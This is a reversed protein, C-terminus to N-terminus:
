CTLLHQWLLEPDIASLPHWESFWQNVGYGVARRNQMLEGALGLGAQQGIATEFVSSFVADISHEQLFRRLRSPFGAIAPKIVVVDRWGRAYCDQLQALTAVSEDLAIPTSFGEALQLMADLQDPPLPQELFEITFNCQQRLFAANVSDCTRLWTQAAEHSLGGNADLRLKVFPLILSLQALIQEEDSSPYVGIKWKFTRYGKEWLSEWASLAAEGAPLLGSNPLLPLSPPHPIPAPAPSFPPHPIPSPPHFETRREGDKAGWEEAKERKGKGKAEAKGELMEWASEFGFQCTPLRDPISFITAPSLTTPLRDCFELAEALTESGFWPVPAIEGFGVQGSRGTLRLLIGERDHWEGHNTLLPRTFPRGYSRFEFRLESGNGLM